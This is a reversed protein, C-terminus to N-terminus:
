QGLGTQDILDSWMKKDLDLRKAFETPGLNVLDVGLKELKGKADPTKMGITIADNLKAIVAPPTGAPAMIGVWFVVRYGDYGLEKFTPVAPIKQNRVESTVAIPRVNGGTIYPTSPPIGGFGLDLRQGMLDVLVEAAGKYPVHILDIGGRAKLLEGALHHQSGVGASGYTLKKIKALHLLSKLDVAELDNRAMLVFASEATLNVPVLRKLPDAIGKKLLPMIVVPGDSALLLSYGDAPSNAVNDSAIAGNAGPRNEVFVSHKFKLSLQEAIIRAVSDPTGGAAYSVVIRITKSPFNDDARTSAAQMALVFGFCVAALYKM